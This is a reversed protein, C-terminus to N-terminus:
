RIRIWAMLSSMSTWLTHRVEVDLDDIKVAKGFFFLYQMLAAFEWMGRIRQMTSLEASPEPISDESSDVEAHARKRSSVM